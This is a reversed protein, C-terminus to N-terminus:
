ALRSVAALGRSVRRPSRLVASVSLGYFDPVLAVAVAEIAIDLKSCAVDCDGQLAQAAARTIARMIFTIKVACDAGCGLM